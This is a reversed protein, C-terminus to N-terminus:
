LSIPLTVQFCAGGGEREDCHVAGGHRRAISRVLSLGLGAGGSSESTGKLRYFPEFIRAREAEPVGPGRDCVALTIIKDKNALSVDIATAEGGHHRANELLNRILRRLLRPSGQMVIVGDVNLDAGTRACEEAVLATLDIEEFPEQPADPSDLRSALLIEEILQDLESIDRTIESRAKATDGRDLMELAMRIRALPSRLEHSANALLTRHAGVLTEIRTAAVNFREALWAIEDHGRACQRVTHQTYLKTFHRSLLAASPPRQLKM